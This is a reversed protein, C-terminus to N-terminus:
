PKWTQLGADTGIAGTFKGKVPATRMLLGKDNLYDFSEMPEVLGGRVPAERSALEDGAGMGNGEFARLWGGYTVNPLLIFDRGFLRADQRAAERRSQASPHLPVSGTAPHWAGDQWVQEASKEFSRRGGRDAVQGYYEAYDSLNDGVSLIIEFGRVEEVFVRQRFKDELSFKRIGAPHAVEMVPMRKMFLRTSRAHEHEAENGVEDPTDKPKVPAALEAELEEEEILGLQFLNRATGARTINERSTIFLPTVGSEEVYSVFEVAGPVAGAQGADCWKKWSSKEHFNSGSEIQWAQYASNDLLTEDLDFIVAPQRYTQQALRDTMVRRAMQYTQTCLAFYEASTAQFLVAHLNNHAGMARPSTPEM